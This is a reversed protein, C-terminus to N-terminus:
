PDQETVTGLSARIDALVLSRRQAEERAKPRGLKAYADALEMHCWPNAPDAALVRQFHKAADEWREEHAALLGRMRTLLWPEGQEAEPLSEAVKSFGAWDDREFHCELLAAACHLDHPRERHLDELLAQAEDLRGEYTRYRGLATRLQPNDPDQELYEALPGSGSNSHWILLHPFYYQKSDYVDALRQTHMDALLSKREEFRLEVSLIYGLWKCGSVVHDRPVAANRDALTLFDRFSREADDVRDLRMLVQGEQLRASPGYKPDDSPIARFCALATPLRDEAIALEGLVSLTDTRSPRRGYLSQFKREAQRYEERTVGAPLEPDRSLYWGAFAVGGLAAVVAALRPWTARRGRPLAEAESTNRHNM